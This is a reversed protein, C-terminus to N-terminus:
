SSNVTEPRSDHPQVAPFNWPLYNTLDTPAQGGAEACAQLYATPWQHPNVDWVCLTQFLSFLM